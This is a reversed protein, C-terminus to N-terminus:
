CAWGMDHLRAYGDLDDSRLPTELFWVNLDKWTDITRAARAVDDWMYQVDVMIVMEDGVAKRVAEIVETTRIDPEHLGVHAYPGDFTLEIKTARFGLQKARVLGVRHDLSTREIGQIPNCRPTPPSPRVPLVALSSTSLSAPRRALLTWLAIDLAGIACIVAGRRGNMASGIYLKEWLTPPDLPDEGILMDRLSQGMTHTGPAEVSARAIWANVDTEGIGDIGEDTHIEVIFTDQASSTADVKMDPALLVHSDIGTIKVRSQRRTTGAEFGSYQGSSVWIRGAQGPPITM